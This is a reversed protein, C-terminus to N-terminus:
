HTPFNRRASFRNANDAALKGSDRRMQHSKARHREIKACHRNKEIGERLAFLNVIEAFQETARAECSRVRANASLDTIQRLFELWHQVFKEILEAGSQVLHVFQQRAVADKDISRFVDANHRLFARYSVRERTWNQAGAADFVIQPAFMRIEIIFLVIKLYHDAARPITIIAIQDSDLFHPLACCNQPLHDVSQWAPRDVHGIPFVRLRWFRVHHCFHLFQNVMKNDHRFTQIRWWSYNVDPSFYRLTQETEVDVAYASANRM